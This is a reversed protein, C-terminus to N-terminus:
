VDIEDLRADREDGLQELLDRRRVRELHLARLRAELRRDVEPPAHGVVLYPECHRCELRVVDCPREEVVALVRHECRHELLKRRGDLLREHAVLEVVQEGELHLALAVTCVQHRLPVVDNELDRHPQAVRRALDLLAGGGLGAREVVAAGHGAFAAFAALAALAALARVAALAAFALACAFACAFAGTLACLARPRRPAAEHAAVGLLAGAVAGAPRAGVAQPAVARPCRARCRDGLELAHEQQGLVRRLRLHTLGLPWEIALHVLIEAVHVGLVEVDGVLHALELRDRLRVLLAPGRLALCGHELELLARGLAVYGVDDFAVRVEQRHAVLHEDVVRVRRAEDAVLRDMEVAAGVADQELRVRHERGGLLEVAGLAGEAGGGLRALQRVLAGGVDRHVDLAAGVLVAGDLELAVARRLRLAVHHRRLRELREARRDPKVARLVVVGRPVDRERVAVGPQRELVVPQVETEDLEVGLLVCLGARGLGLLELRGHLSAVHRRM